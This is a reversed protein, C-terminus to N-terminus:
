GESLTAATRRRLIASAWVQRGLRRVRFLHFHNPMLVFRFLEWGIRSVTLALGDIIRQHDADDHFIRQRANGRCMVHHIAGPYEVRLLRSM